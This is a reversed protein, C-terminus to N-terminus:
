PSVPYMLIRQYKLKKTLFIFYSGDWRYGQGIHGWRGM